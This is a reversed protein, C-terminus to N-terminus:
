VIHRNEFQMSIASSLMDRETSMNMEIASTLMSTQNSIDAEIIPILMSAQTSIDTSIRAGIDESPSGGGIAGLIPGDIGM